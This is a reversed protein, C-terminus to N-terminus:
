KQEIRYIKGTGGCFPCIVRVYEPITASITHGDRNRNMALINTLKSSSSYNLALLWGWGQCDHCTVERIIQTVPKKDKSTNEKKDQSNAFILPIVLFLFVFILKKM